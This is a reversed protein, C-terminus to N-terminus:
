QSLGPDFRDFKEGRGLCNRLQDVRWLIRGAARSGSNPRRIDKGIPLSAGRNSFGGGNFGRGSAREGGFATLAGGAAEVAAEELTFCQDDDFLYSIRSRGDAKSGVLKADM